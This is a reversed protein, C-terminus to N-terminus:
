HRVSDLWKGGESLFNWVGGDGAHVYGESAPDAGLASFVEQLWKNKTRTVGLEPLWSELEGSEVTLLGYNRMMQFFDNASRRADGSLLGIGGKRKYGTDASELSQRVNRRASRIAEKMGDPVGFGSLYSEVVAGDEKIWDLDMIGITPIGLSRLAEVIRPMTHKGYGNLFAAHRFGKRDALRSAVEHYFARDADAECVVASQYFLASTVGISKLLPDMTINKLHDRPLSMASSFEPKHTLKIIEVDAGSDICGMLFHPSHTAAFLQKASDLNKAIENGLFYALSPHLFAEPEDILLIDHDGAMVESMIGIFAKTGDSATSVPSCKEFFEVSNQSFSREIEPTDPKEASLAYQIQSMGTPDIVLHQGFADFVIDSLKSRVPDNRLLLSITSNAPNRFPVATTPSTLQLRNEGGLNIILHQLFWQAYIQHNTGQTAFKKLANKDILNYNGRRGVAIKEPNPDETPLKPRSLWQIKSELEADDFPALGIEAAVVGSFHGTFKQAIDRLAQSKGGNNPGIFLTIRGPNIVLSDSTKTAGASFRIQEIRM